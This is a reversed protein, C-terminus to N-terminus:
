FMLFCSKYHLFDKLESRQWTLHQLTCRHCFYGRCKGAGSQGYCIIAANSGGRTGGERAPGEQIPALVLPEVQGFIQQKSAGGPWIFDCGPYSTWMSGHTCVAIEDGSVEAVAPDSCRLKDADTLPRMRYSRLINGTVRSTEHRSLAAITRLERNRANLATNDDRSKLLDAELEDRSSTVAELKSEVKLLKSEVDVVKTRSQSLEEKYAKGSLELKKRLGRNEEEHKKKAAANKQCEAEKAALEAELTEVRRAVLADSGGGGGKGSCDSDVGPGVKVAAGPGGCLWSAARSSRATLAPSDRDQKFYFPACNYLM